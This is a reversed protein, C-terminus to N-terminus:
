GEEDRTCPPPIIITAQILDRLGKVPVSSYLRELRACFGVSIISTAKPARGHFDRKQRPATQGWGIDLTDAAGDPIQDLGLSGLGPESFQGILLQHPQHGRQLHQGKLVVQVRRAAPVQNAGCPDGTLRHALM